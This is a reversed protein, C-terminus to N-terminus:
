IEPTLKPGLWVALSTCARTGPGAPAASVSAVDVSTVDLGSIGNIWLPGPLDIEDLGLPTDIPENSYVPFRQPKDTTAIVWVRAGAAAVETPHVTDPLPVERWTSEERTLVTAPDRGRADAVIWLTGDSTAACSVPSRGDTDVESWASGDFHYVGATSECLYLDSAKTGILSHRIGPQGPVVTRTPKGGHKPWVYAEIEAEYRVVLLEGSPLRLELADSYPTPKPLTALRRDRAPAQTSWGASTWWADFDPGHRNGAHASLATGTPLGSKPRRADGPLTLYISADWNIWEPLGRLFRPDQAVRSGDVMALFSRAAIVAGGDFARLELEPLASDLILHWSPAPAVPAVASPLPAPTPPASKAAHRPAPSAAGPEPPAFARPEGGGAACALCVAVPLATLGHSILREGSM